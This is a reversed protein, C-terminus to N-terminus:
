TARPFELEFTSGGGEVSSVTVKGGSREVAHRVLALGLGTGGTGRSRARDIRYFREFIRDVEAEPIGCGTDIVEIRVAQADARLRVTVGGADTYALANDLLNDLAVALDTPDAAAFVDEGALATEEFTLALGRRVAVPNHAVVANAIAARVDTLSDPAPSTELRSLELLDVVLRQLRQAEQEIQRAFELAQADDGDEAAHAASMALLQIGAVPTKLEHSANAVFDRRVQDVRTRETVDSVAILTRRVGEIDGLPVASIRLSRGTPDPGIEETQPAAAATMDFMRTSLSAPLGSALVPQNAWGSAPSGFLRSAAENAFRVTHDDLLFVADQLGDLASRLSREETQLEDIRRRIQTRLETLSQALVGLEGSPQPIDVGLDGGAMRRAADSLREVPDALSRSVVAAIAAAAVLAFVLLALGLRRAGAVVAEIDALKESARVALRRGQATSPVAIYLQESGETASVRRAEGTRSALASVIEPRDAHNAMSAVVENSDALVTGDSAVITLRVGTQSGLTAAVEVPGMDSSQLLTSASWAVALLSRKQQEVLANTLPGFLSWTWAISVVAMVLAYGLVLRARYSGALRLSRTRM